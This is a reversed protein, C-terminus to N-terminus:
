QIMVMVARAAVRVLMEVMGAMEMVALPGERAIEILAGEGHADTARHAAAFRREHEGQALLQPAPHIERRDCVVNEGFFVPLKQDAMLGEFRLANARHLRAAARVGGYALVNRRVQQGQFIKLAPKM